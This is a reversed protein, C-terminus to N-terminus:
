FTKEKDHFDDMFTDSLSVSKKVVQNEGSIIQPNEPVLPLVLPRNTLPKEIDAVFFGTKNVFFKVDMLTGNADIRLTGSKHFNEEASMEHEHVIVGNFDFDELPIEYTVTHYKRDSTQLTYQGEISIFQGKKSIFQIYNEGNKM